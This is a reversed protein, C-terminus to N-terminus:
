ATPRLPCRSADVSPEPASPRSRTFPPAVFPGARAATEAVTTNDFGRENIVSVSMPAVTIGAVSMSTREHVGAVVLNGIRKRIKLLDAAVM